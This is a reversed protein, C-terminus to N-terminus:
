LNDGFRWFGYHKQKHRYEQWEKETRTHKKEVLEQIATRKEALSLAPLYVLNGLNVSCDSMYGTPSIRLDRCRSRQCAYGISANPNLGFIVDNAVVRYYRCKPRSRLVEMTPEIVYREGILERATDVSVFHESFLQPNEEYINGCPVLELFKVVVRGPCDAAFHIFDFVESVNEATLCVNIKVVDFLRSAEAIGDVVDAFFRTNTITQYKNPDLSDLSVNIRNIGAKKLSTALERLNVGNTTMKQYEFGCENAFGVLKVFDKRATPEGGTWHIVRIGVDFCAQLIEVVGSYPLHRGATNSHDCYSCHMQCSGTASFRLTYEAYMDICVGWDTTSYGPQYNKFVM